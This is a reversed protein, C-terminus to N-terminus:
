AMGTAATASTAVGAAAIRERWPTRVTEEPPRPGFGAAEAAAQRRCEGCETEGAM